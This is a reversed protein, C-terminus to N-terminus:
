VASNIKNASFVGFMTYSEVLFRTVSYIMNGPHLAHSMAQIIANVAYQDM